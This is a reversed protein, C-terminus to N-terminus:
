RSSARRARPRVAKLTRKRKTKGTNSSHGLKLTLAEAVGRQHSAEREAISLARTLEAIRQQQARQDERHQKRVDALESRVTKLDVRAQDVQTHSRDEVAQVHQQLRDRERAMRTEIAQIEQRLQSEATVLAQNQAVLRELEHERTKLESQVRDILQQQVEARGTALKAAEIAIARDAEAAALQATQESVRADLDAAARQLAEHEAKLAQQAETRAHQLAQTWLATMAQGVEDPLDPLLSAQRLREALGQRWADLMRTVTNPSGTGLHARIREVTPREGAATIADAAQNVQDQTIGRPM